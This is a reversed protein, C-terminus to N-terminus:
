KKKKKKGKGKRFKQREVVVAPRVEALKQKQAEQKGYNLEMESLAGAIYSQDKVSVGIHEKGSSVIIIEGDDDDADEDMTEDACSEAEALEAVKRSKSAIAEDKAQTRHKACLIFAVTGDTAIVETCGAINCEWAILMRSKDVLAKAVARRADNGAEGKICAKSRMYKVSDEIRKLEAARKLKAARRLKAARELELLKKCSLPPGYVAALAPTTASKDRKREFTPHIQSSARV